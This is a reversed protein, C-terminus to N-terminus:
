LMPGGHMFYHQFRHRCDSLNLNLKVAGSETGHFCPSWILSPFIGLIIGFGM